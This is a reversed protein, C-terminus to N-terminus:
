QRRPSKQRSTISLKDSSIVLMIFMPYVSHLTKKNLVIIINFTSHKRVICSLLYCAMQFKSWLNMVVRRVIGSKVAKTFIISHIVTDKERGFVVNKQESYAWSTKGVACATMIVHSSRHLENLSSSAIIRRYSLGDNTGIIAQWRNPAPGNYSDIVNSYINSEINENVFIRKFIDDAFHCGNPRPRLINIRKQLTVWGLSLGNGLCYLKIRLISADSKEEHIM